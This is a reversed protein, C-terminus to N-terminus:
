KSMKLHIVQKEFKRLEKYIRFILGRHSLYNAFVEGM